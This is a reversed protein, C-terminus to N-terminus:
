DDKVLSLRSGPGGPLLHEAWPGDPMDGALKTIHENWWSRQQSLDDYDYHVARWVRDAAAYILM